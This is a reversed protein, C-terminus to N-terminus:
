DQWAAVIVALLLALMPIWYDLPQTQNDPLGLGVISACIAIATVRFGIRAKTSLRKSQPAARRDERAAPINTAATRMLTGLEQAVLRDDLVSNNPEKNLEADKM